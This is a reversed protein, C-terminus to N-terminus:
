LLIISIRHTHTHVLPINHVNKNECRDRNHLSLYSRRKRISNNCAFVNQENQLQAPSFINFNWNLKNEM